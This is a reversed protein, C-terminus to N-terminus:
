RNGGATPDPQGGNSDGQDWSDGGLAFPDGDNILGVGAVGRTGHTTIVRGKWAGDHWGRMWRVGLPRLHDALREVVEETMVLRGCPEVWATEDSDLLVRLEGLCHPHSDEEEEIVHLVVEYVDLRLV